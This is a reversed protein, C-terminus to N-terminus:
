GLIEAVHKMVTDVSIDEMCAKPNSEYLCNKLQGDLCTGEVIDKFPCESEIGYVSKYQRFFRHFPLVDGCVVLCPKGLIGAIHAPGSNVTISFDALSLISALEVVDTKGTLDIVGELNEINIVEWFHTWIVQYGASILRRSLIHEKDWDRYVSDKCYPSLVITKKSPNFGNRNLLAQAQGKETDTIQFFDRFQLDSPDLPLGYFDFLRKSLYYYIDDEERIDLYDFRQSLYFCNYTATDIPHECDMVEIFDLRNLLKGLHSHIRVPVGTIKYLLEFAPLAMITDGLLMSSIVINNISM